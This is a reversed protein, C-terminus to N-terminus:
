STYFRGDPRKGRAAALLAGAVILALGLGLELGADDNPGTRVITAPLTSAGGATTRTAAVTTPVLTTSTSTSTTTTPTPASPDALDKVAYTVNAQSYNYLGIRGTPFAGAIDFITTTALDGVREVKINGPGYTFKLTNVAGDTWGQTSGYSTDLVDCGLADVHDWFCPLESGTTRIDFTGNVRTLAYGAEASGEKTQKWDFLIYSNDCNASGCTSDSLPATYGLVVGVFDNDVSQAPTIDVTFSASEKIFPSVFFTPAGDVTQTVSNRDGAVVWTGSGTAGQRTWSNLSNTAARASPGQVALGVLLVGVTVCLAGIRARSFGTM